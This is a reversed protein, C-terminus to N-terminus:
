RLRSPVGSQVFLLRWDCLCSQAVFAAAALVGVLMSVSGVMPGMAPVARQWALSLGCLGMVIAYWSPFLFKLPTPHHAM